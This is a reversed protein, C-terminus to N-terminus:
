RGTQLRQAEELQAQAEEWRGAQRLARALLAHALPLNPHARIVREFEGIAGSVDGRSARVNGLSMRAEAYDPKLRLAAEYHAVAEDVRNTMLLVNGYNNHAEADDPALRLAEELEPVAEGLRGTMALATGLNNHANAKDPKLRIAERFEDIAEPMRRAAALARGLNYHAEGYNPWLRLAAEIRAIAGPIDGQLFLAAGLDNLSVAYDPKLRLAEDYQAIGEGVRGSDVLLVGLNNYAMWCDPNRAITTRYLAEADRYMGCQRYTLVGLATLVIAAAAQPGMSASGAAAQWRDWGAAALAVVGLMALYQFHDAVYSFVFPYVNIFGLVPALTGVFLLLAALPARTRRRLRWCVAALALLGLPFLWQRAAGPDVSWHPYIFILGTPWALKALYFWVVRGALLGRQVLSLDFSTGQAGIYTREVWATFYGAAAGLVLWPALPRVDDKWSLRGNRWWVLVLLAAPLTATVSKSLLALVFLGTALWYPSEGKRWRFYALAALLYFVTSLTNKQESIWAVSEVGVPHLAFIFAALWPWRANGDAALRRLLLAFLCAAAAHLLINVLHYGAVADGWLRHELWFASHLVPYYQQTAGLEFWIRWLGHASRLSSKTVHADDDWILGGRIAPFYAVLCALFIAAGAWAARFRMTGSNTRSGITM